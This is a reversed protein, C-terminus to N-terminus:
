PYPLHRLGNHDARYSFTFSLGFTHSYGREIDLQHRDVSVNRCRTTVFETNDKFVYWDGEKTPTDLVFSTGNSALYRLEIKCLVGAVESPSAFYIDHTSDTKVLQVM